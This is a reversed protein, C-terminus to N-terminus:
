GQDGWSKKIQKQLEAAKAYDDADVARKLEQYLTEVDVPPPTSADMGVHTTAGQYARIYEILYDDFVRYCNDCGLLGTETFDRLTMGCTPCVRREVPVARRAAEARLESYKNDMLAKCHSCVRYTKSVGDTIRVFKHEALRHHCIQCLEKENM